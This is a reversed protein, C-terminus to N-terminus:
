EPDTPMNIGVTIIFGGLVYTSLMGTTLHYHITITMTALTRVIRILTAGGLCFPPEAIVLGCFSNPSGRAGISILLPLSM